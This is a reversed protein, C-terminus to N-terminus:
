FHTHLIILCVISVVEELKIDQKMQMANLHPNERDSSPVTHMNKVFECLLAIKLNKKRLSGPLPELLALLIFFFGTLKLGM